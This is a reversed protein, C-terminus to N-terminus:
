EGKSYETIIRIMLILAQTEEMILEVDHEEEFQQLKDRLELFEQKNM